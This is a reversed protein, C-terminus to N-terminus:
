NSPCVTIQECLKAGNEGDLIQTIIWPLYTAVLNVCQAALFAPAVKCVRDLANTIEQETANTSLYAEAYTVVLECLPCLYNDPPPATAETAVKKASAFSFSCVMCFLLVAVFKM